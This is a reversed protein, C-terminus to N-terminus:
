CDSSKNMQMPTFSGALINIDVQSRMKEIEILFYIVSFPNKTVTHTHAQIAGISNIIRALATITAKENM